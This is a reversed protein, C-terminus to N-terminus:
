WTVGTERRGRASLVYVEEPPYGAGRVNRTEGTKVAWGDGVMESLRPAVSYRETTPSHTARYWDWAEIATTGRPGCAILHELVRARIKGAKYRVLRAATAEGPAADAHQAAVPRGADPLTSTMARIAAAATAPTFSPALEHPAAATVAPDDLWELVQAGSVQHASCAPGVVYRVVPRGPCPRGGEGKVCALATAPREDLATM